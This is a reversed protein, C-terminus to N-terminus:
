RSCCGQAALGQGVDEACTGTARTGLRTEAFVHAGELLGPRHPPLSMRQAGVVHTAQAQCWVRTRATNECCAPPPLSEDGDCVFGLLEALPLVQEQGRPGCALADGVVWSGVRWHLLTM